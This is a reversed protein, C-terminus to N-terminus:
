SISVAPDSFPDNKGYFINVPTTVAKLNYEPPTRQNYKAMNLDGYDYHRFKGPAAFCCLDSPDHHQPTAVKKM